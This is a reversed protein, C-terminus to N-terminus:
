GAASIGAQLLKLTEYPGEFVVGDPFTITWRGHHKGNVLEGELVTGDPFTETWHGQQKGNVYEGEQVTGDPLTFTWHGHAKGNVYEGEVVTGDPSTITWHGHKKGNVMEGKGDVYVTGALLTTIVTGDPKIEKEPVCGALMLVFGAVVLSKVRNMRKVRNM